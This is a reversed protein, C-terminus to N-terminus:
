SSLSLIHIRCYKSLTLNVTYFSEHRFFPRFGIVMAVQAFRQHFGAAGYQFFFSGSGERQPGARAFGTNGMRRGLVVKFRNCVQQCFNRRSSKIIKHLREVFPYLM